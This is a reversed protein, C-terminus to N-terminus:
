RSSYRVQHLVNAPKDYLRHLTETRDQRVEAPQKGRVSSGRTHAFGNSVALFTLHESLSGTSPGPLNDKISSGYTLELYM